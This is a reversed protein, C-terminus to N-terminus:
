CIKKTYTILFYGYNDKAAVVLHAEYPHFMIISPSDPSRSNFVQHELRGTLIKKQEEKSENRLSANRLYRRVSISELSRRLYLVVNPQEAALSVEM